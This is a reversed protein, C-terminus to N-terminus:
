APELLARMRPLVSAPPVIGHAVVVVIVSAVVLEREDTGVTGGMTAVELRKRACSDIVKGLAESLIGITSLDFSFQM